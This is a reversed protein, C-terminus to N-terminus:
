KIDLAFGIRFNRGAAPEYYRDGRANISVSGNYKKDALNNLALFPSLAVAKSLKLEPRSVRFNLVTYGGNRSTNQNNVYYSDTGELALRFWWSRPSWSLSGGFHHPPIGPIKNNTLSLNGAQAYANTFEANVLTYSIVTQLNDTAQWQLRTELGLHRTSGQNRYYVRDSDQIQYPLLMDNIWLGYVAMDYALRKGVTGRVGTEVGYTHEPEISPNFGGTGGPRNVLETTTPAEFATSFNAYWHGSGYSYKLGVSPSFATFTRSGSQDGDVLLHDAAHFRLWDFRLGASITLHGLPYAARTFFATNWVTELQDLLTQDGATGQVSNFNKRDDYQFKTELGASWHLASRTHQLTLRGGGAWRGVDIYAFPLPNHLKRRIGYFTANLMGYSTDLYYTTGLQGQWSEKGANNEAFYSRAQRPDTDAQERTLSGPHDARPMAAYAGFFKLGSRGTLPMQGNIASRSLKVSSHDRYGEEYLYSTYGNLNLSGIQQSIQVEGKKLGYSGALTRFRVSPATNAPPSTTFYLVGGSSNGWFTSAPGRLLELRQVFAPDIINLISQGDATTLPIGDMVVQLGRVGFAARWGIGRIVVREGLAFNERNSIWVGPLDYTLRDLTIAPSAIREVGDRTQVSLSLPAESVTVSSHTAKVEIPKLNVHLSDTEQGFAHYPVLCALLFLSWYYNM